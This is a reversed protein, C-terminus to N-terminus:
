WHGDDTQHHTGDGSSNGLGTTTNKWLPCAGIIVDQASENWNERWRTMGRIGKRLRELEGTARNTTGDSRASSINAFSGLLELMLGALETSTSFVRGNKGDVVLEDLCGFGIACVPVECGFLDLIKMPLDIGSTSTHLSVGLDACGLLLPYDAAELWMTMISVHELQLRSIREEYMEKQPGKGTVIVVVHPFSSAAGNDNGRGDRVQTDVDVCADLLVSFDEDPTWSTSSIVLAPRDQRLRAKGGVIETFITRNADGDKAVGMRAMLGGTGTGTGTAAKRFSSELRRMLRHQEMPKTPRFFEPPRDHLVSIRDDPCNALGFNQRLWSKMALTVCLHGDALPAMMREYLRAVMRIPHWDSVDFMTYGLNHWDIVLGPRSLLLLPRSICFLYALLLLPISPPNQVLVCDIPVSQKRGNADKRHHAAPITIFLTRLLSYVLGVLRLVLYLPLLCRRLSKPPSPPEMRIIKFLSDEERNGGQYNAASTIGTRRWANADQLPPIVDEGAYGCLVVRHGHELLSLAHFQMRPSRGLDGLVIIVVNRRQLEDDPTRRQQADAAETPKRRNGKAAAAPPRKM